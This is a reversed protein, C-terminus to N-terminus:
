TVTFGSPLTGTQTDPNTVLVDWQGAAAENLDFICTVQTASVVVVNTAQIIASGKMLKVTAGIQFNTGTLSTINVPLGTVNTNPIISTITPAPNKITFGNALTGSEGGPNIVVVNWSGIVADSPITFTCAIQSTSALVGSATINQSGSRTLNVTAGTQFNTGALNTISVTTGNVGTNPTINMVTIVPPATTTTTTTSTTTTTNIISFGNSLIGSQGDTNIVTVNWAGIAASSPIVFQCTINSVSVITVSSGAIPASGRELRVIAGTRFNTGTLTTINVTAGAMGSSPTIGTITPAALPATTATVMTSTTVPVTTATIVPVASLSSVHTVKVPYLKETTARDSLETREDKRYWSGDSKKYTIAREYKDTKADYTKILWISDTSSATKAIIDGAVFKPGV